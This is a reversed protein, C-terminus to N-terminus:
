EVIVYGEVEDHLHDHFHYTGTQNLTVTFSENQALRRETIGDYAVHHDHNGFAVDRNIADANKITLTDCLSATTTGPTMKSNAITVVHAAGKQRCTEAANDRQLVAGAAVIVVAAGVVGVTLWVLKRNNM